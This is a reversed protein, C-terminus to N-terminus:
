SEFSLSALLLSSLYPDVMEGLNTVVKAVLALTYDSPEECHKQVIQICLPLHEYIKEPCNQIYECVLQAFETVKTELDAMSLVENVSQETPKYGRRM